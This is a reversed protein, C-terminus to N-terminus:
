KSTLRYHLVREYTALTFGEGSEWIQGDNCNGLGKVHAIKKQTQLDYVLAGDSNSALLRRGSADTTFKSGLEIDAGLVIDQGERLLHLENQDRWILDGEPTCAFQYTIHINTFRRKQVPAGVSKVWSAVTEGKAAHSKYVVGGSSNLAAESADIGKVLVQKDIPELRDNKLRWCEMGGDSTACLLDDGLWRIDLISVPTKLGKSLFSVEELKQHKGGVDYLAIKGSYNAAVFHKGDKHWATSRVVSLNLHAIEHRGQADILEAGDNMHTVCVVRRNWPDISRVFLGGDLRQRSELVAGQLNEAKDRLVQMLSMTLPMVVFLLVGLVAGIILLRKRRGFERADDM